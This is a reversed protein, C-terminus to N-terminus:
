ALDKRGEVEGMALRVGVRTVTSNRITAFTRSGGTSKRGNRGQRAGESIDLTTDTEAGHGTTDTEASHIARNTTRKGCQSTTRNGGSPNQKKSAQRAARAITEAEQMTEVREWENTPESSKSNRYTLRFMSPRRWSANGARGKETVEIFGLAALVRISPAISHRHVGYREFDDFTIPLRGNDGGGHDALEIEIRSLCRHESATLVRYSPSRMMEILRPAFQGGIRTRGNTKRKGVSRGTKDNDLSM